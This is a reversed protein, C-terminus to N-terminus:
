EKRLMFYISESVIFEKRLKYLITHIQRRKEIEGSINIGSNTIEGYSNYIEIRQPISDLHESYIRLEVENSDNLEISINKCSDLWIPVFLSVDFFSPRNTKKDRVVFGLNKDILIYIEGNENITDPILFIMESADSFIKDVIRKQAFNGTNLNGEKSNEGYLLSLMFFFYFLSVFFITSRLFINQKNKLGNILFIISFGGAFISIIFLIITTM